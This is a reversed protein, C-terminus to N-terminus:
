ALDIAEVAELLVHDDALEDRGGRTEAGVPPDLDRRALTGLEVVAVPQQGVDRRLDRHVGLGLRQDEAGVGVEAEALSRGGLFLLFGARTGASGLPRSRPLATRSAPGEGNELRRLRIGCVGGRCRRPHGRGRTRAASARVAPPVGRQARRRRCWAEASKKMFSAFRTPGAWRPSAGARANRDSRAATRPARALLENKWSKRPM